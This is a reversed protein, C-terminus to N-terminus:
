KKFVYYLSVLAVPIITLFNKALQVPASYDGVYLYPIYRLLTGFSIATLFYHLKKNQPLLAALGIFTVLYWPYPEHTFVVFLIAFFLLWLSLIIDKVPILVITLYKVGASLLLSILRPTKKDLKGFYISLLLFTLMLAENHPSYLTELIILPNLAFLKLGELKSRLLNLNKESAVRAEYADDQSKKLKQLEISM